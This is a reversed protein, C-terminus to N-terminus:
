KERYLEISPITQIKEGKRFGLVFDVRQKLTNIIEEGAYDDEIILTIMGYSIESPIVHRWFIRFQEISEFECLASTYAYVALMPRRKGRGKKSEHSKIRKFAKTVATHLGAFTKARLCQIGEEDKLKRDNEAQIDDTFAYSPSYADVFVLDKRKEESIPYKQKMFEWIQLPHRDACVYNATEDADLREKMLELALCMSKETPIGTLLISSGNALKKIDEDSLHPKFVGFSDSKLKRAVFKLEYHRYPTIFDTLSKIPKFYKWIKNTRLNYIQNYSKLFVWYFLIGFGILYFIISGFALGYAVRSYFPLIIFSVIVFINSILFVILSVLVNDSHARLRNDKSFLTYLATVFASTALSM